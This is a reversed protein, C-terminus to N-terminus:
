NGEAADRVIVWKGDRQVIRNNPALMQASGDALGANNHILCRVLVVNPERTSAGPSLLEYSVNGPGFESWNLAAPRNTDGACILVKPSSLENSMSLFDLPFIENNDQAWLRAALGIQKLSNICAIRQAKDQAVAFPDAEGQPGPTTRSEALRKEVLLRQNEAQLSTMEQLRQRLEVIEARLKQLELNDRRLRQFETDASALPQEEQNDQRAREPMQNSARLAENERRLESLMNSQVAIAVVCALFIASFALAPLWRRLLPQRDHARRGTLQTRSLVIDAELKERLGHPAKLQPAKRLLDETKQTENM